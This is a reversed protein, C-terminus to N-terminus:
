QERTGTARSQQDVATRLYPTEGRISIFVEDGHWIDGLRGRRRRLARAYAPRVEGM